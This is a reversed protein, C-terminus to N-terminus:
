PAWRFTIGLLWQRTVAASNLGVLYGADVDLGPRITYIAGALAVAPRSGVTVDLSSDTAGDLCITLRDSAAIMAAMSAHYANARVGNDEPVHAYGLNLHLTLPAQDTTMVLLGHPSYGPRPLGLGANATPAEVGARV